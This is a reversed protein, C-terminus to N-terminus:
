SGYFKDSVTKIIRKNMKNFAQKKKSFMRELFKSQSRDRLVTIAMFFWDRETTAFRKGRGIGFKGVVFNFLHSWARM